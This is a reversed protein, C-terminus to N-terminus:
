PQVPGVFVEESTHEGAASEIADDSLLAEIFEKPAELAFAGLNYFIRPSPAPTQTSTAANAMLRGIAADIKEKKHPLGSVPDTRLVFVVPISQDAPSAALAQKLAADVKEAMNGEDDM